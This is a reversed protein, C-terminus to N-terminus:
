EEPTLSIVDRAVGDIKERSFYVPFFQDKAWLTFLNDYFPSEPDGSQGPANMGVSQDWDATNVILRFTAGFRQNNSGGTSNLTYSNGGRPLPGVDLKERLTDGVASSLPHSIRAHKYSAQGYTWGSMDSGLQDELNSVAEALSELLIENRAQVPEAGFTRAPVVLRDVMQDMSYGGLKKRVPDPILAENVNKELAREWAVYIGATVSSPSLRFNWDLLRTRAREVAKEETETGKLLPVLERAPISLYDTQLQMMDMMSHKRSSGLVEELRHARYPSAWSFGMADMYPYDDPVLNENATAWYGKDPNYVHPKAKIPLYGDWEYDGNGPVPVLGSWNPRIPAIGVSQWGINGDKSAWVMNEGPIHSYSCAERFEKWNTAQDMRLSALYPAGGVERWAARVAYAVNNTSDQHVVPGHRTYKLEAQVDEGGAVEITDEVVRMAEWRGEYRYEDPNEPNTEYVYLDEGDTPFVTLGWAGHENHGISVGPITPEGGGIVNWGPANLHVWYRLSPAVISRHPDNALIPEGSQTRSGRVAWNNSGVGVQSPDSTRTTPVTANLYELASTDQRRSAVLDEPRFEIGDRYAKYLRLINQSLLSGDISEDLALNPSGPEFREVKRVAEAGLEAVARGYELESEINGLLGQHRSIVVEPTWKHPKIGLLNFGVSLLDPNRRAKEVYANVGRVFSTIITKGRPHYHTMEQEMDGRFQFLRRGIDHEVARRGLIESMTGTAERRWIEFQFLRDRAASYGQAFFLDPTNEAYIHSIGWADKVIEVPAELGEHEVRLTDPAPQASASPIANLPLIFLCCVIFLTWPAFQTWPVPWM